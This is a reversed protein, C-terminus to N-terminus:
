PREINLEEISVKQDYVAILEDMTISEWVQTVQEMENGCGYLILLGFSALFILYKKM